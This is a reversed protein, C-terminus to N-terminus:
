FIASLTESLKKEKETCTEGDNVNFYGTSHLLSKNQNTASIQNSESIHENLIMPFDMIKMDNPLTRSCFCKPHKWYFAGQFPLEMIVVHQKLRGVQVWPLRENAAINKSLKYQRCTLESGSFAGGSTRAKQAAATHHHNSNRDGHSIPQARAAGSARHNRLPQPIPNGNLYPYGM